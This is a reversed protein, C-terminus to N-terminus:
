SQSFHQLVCFFPATRTRGASGRSGQRQIVKRRERESLGKQRAGRRGKQSSEGTVGLVPHDEKDMIAEYAYNKLSTLCILHFPNRIRWEQANLHHLHPYWQLVGSKNDMLGHKPSLFWNGKILREYKVVRHDQCRRRDGKFRLM